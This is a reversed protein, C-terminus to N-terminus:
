RTSRIEETGLKGLAYAKSVFLQSDLDLYTGRLFFAM